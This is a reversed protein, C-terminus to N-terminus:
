FEEKAPQVSFSRVVKSLGLRGWVGTDNCCVGVITTSRNSFKKTKEAIQINCYESFEVSDDVTSVTYGRQVLKDVAYKPVTSFYSICRSKDIEGIIYTLFGRRLGSHRRKKVYMRSSIDQAIQIM